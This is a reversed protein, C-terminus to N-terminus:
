LGEFLEDAIKDIYKDVIDEIEKDNLDGSLQGLVSDEYLKQKKAEEPNRSVETRKIMNDSITRGPGIRKGDKVVIKGSESNLRDLNLQLRKFLDLRRDM